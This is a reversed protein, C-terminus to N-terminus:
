CGKRALPRSKRNARIFFLCHQRFCQIAGLYAQLLPERGAFPFALRNGSFKLDVAAFELKGDIGCLFSLEEFDNDIVHGSIDRLDLRDGFAFIEGM